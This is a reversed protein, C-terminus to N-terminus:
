LGLKGDNVADVAEDYKKNEEETANPEFPNFEEDPKKSKKRPKRKPKIEQYCTPCYVKEKYIKFRNYEIKNGCKSCKGM